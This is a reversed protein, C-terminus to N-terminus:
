RERTSHGTSTAIRRQAEAFDEPTNMNHFLTEAPGVEHWQGATVREFFIGDLAESVRRVGRELAASFAVACDERYMAALPELGRKSEPVVAQAPSDPTQAILWVLWEATLYPLDCGLILNWHSSSAALATVIGGLPGAGQRHDAVVRPNLHAYREPPGVVTVSDVHPEALRAMRVIMPVGDLELLAKDRGMRTSAGGALVFAAISDCRKV